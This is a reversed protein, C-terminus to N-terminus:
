DPHFTIEKDLAPVQLGYATPFLLHIHLLALLSLSSLLSPPAKWWLALYADPGLTLSASGAPPDPLPGAAAGPGWPSGASLYYCAQTGVTCKELM